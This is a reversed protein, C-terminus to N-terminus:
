AVGGKARQKRFFILWSFSLMKMIIQQQSEGHFFLDTIVSTHPSLTYKLWKYTVSNGCRRKRTLSIINPLISFTTTMKTNLELDTAALINTSEKALQQSPTKSKTTGNWNWSSLSFRSFNALTDSVLGEIQIWWWSSRWISQNGTWWDFSNRFWRFHYLICSIAALKYQWTMIMRIIPNITKGEVIKTKTDDDEPSISLSVASSNFVTLLLSYVVMSIIFLKINLM